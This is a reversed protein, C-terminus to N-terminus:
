LIYRNFYSKYEREWESLKIVMKGIRGAGKMINVLKQDDMTFSCINSIVKEIEKNGVHYIFTYGSFTTVHSVLSFYFVLQPKFFVCM